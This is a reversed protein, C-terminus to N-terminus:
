YTMNIEMDKVTIKVKFKNESYYNKWFKISLFNVIDIEIAIRM